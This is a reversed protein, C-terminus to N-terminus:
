WYPLKWRVPPEALQANRSGPTYVHVPPYWDSAVPLKSELSSFAGSSSLVAATPVDATAFGCNQSMFLVPQAPWKLTAAVGAGPKPMLCWPPLPLQPTSSVETRQSVKLSGVIRGSGHRPEGPHRRSLAGDEHWATLVASALLWPILTLM